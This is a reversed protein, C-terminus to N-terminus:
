DLVAELTHTTRLLREALLDAMFRHMASALAPDRTEMQQLAQTSLCYAKGPGDAIVSATRPADLYFGLEGLVSGPGTRRIRVREGTGSRLYVSVDGEELFFLDRSAEGQRILEEGQAFSVETLYSRFRTTETENEFQGSLYKLASRSVRDSCHGIQELLQEECWELGHDLDAFEAINRDKQLIQSAHLQHHLEANLGTFILLFQRNRALLRMRNFEYAASSDIGNVQEFDLIVFRLPDKGRDEARERLCMSLQVTTGFFLYGRLKLIHLQPGLEVLCREDGIGREVTSRAHEGSLAYRIVPTRSYNLVFQLLAALLGAVLGEIFGTTAIVILILPIVLYEGRPLTKSSEVLWKWLFSFGLYLLLGGVVIRPLLGIKEVGVVLVAASALAAIIGTARHRVGLKLALSSLSLSHFGVMGGGLGAALNALGTVRLEHNVDADRGSLMEMASVTLIISVSTIVIVSGISAWQDLVLQWDARTLLRLFRADFLGFRGDELPGLLWGSQGVSELTEDGNLMAVFFLGTAVTLVLPLARAQSVVRSALIIALAIALGPLWRSLQEPAALEPLSDATDLGLGTMVRLGGVVLLWGAGAFIGGLVSYPLFRILGGARTLGLVFLFAGTILTTATIAVVISAFVQDSDMAAPAAAAIGAAMIALIPAVRDQPISICPETNSAFPLILGTVVATILAINIGYALHGSLDGTFIMAALSVSAVLALAGTWLGSFTITLWNRTNRVPSQELEM